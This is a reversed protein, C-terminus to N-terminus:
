RERLSQVTGPGVPGCQVDRCFSPSPILPRALNFFYTVSYLLKENRRCLLRLWARGLVTGKHALPHITREGLGHRGSKYGTRFCSPFIYLHCCTKLGRFFFFAGELLDASLSLALFAVFGLAAELGKSWFLDASALGSPLTSRRSIWTAFVSKSFGCAWLVATFISPVVVGVVSDITVPRAAALVSLGASLSVKAGGSLLAAPWREWLTEVVCLLDLASDTDKSVRSCRCVM